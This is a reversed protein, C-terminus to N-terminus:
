ESTISHPHHPVPVYRRPETERAPHMVKNKQRLPSSTFVPTSDSRSKGANSRRCSQLATLSPSTAVSDEDDSTPLQNTVNLEPREDNQKVLGKPRRLTLRPEPSTPIIDSGNTPAQQPSSARTETSSPVSLHSVSQNSTLPMTIICLSFYHFVSHTNYSKPIVTSYPCSLFQISSM